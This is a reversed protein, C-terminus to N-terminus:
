FNYALSLRVSRGAARNTDPDGVFLAPSYAENFLNDVAVRVEAGELVGADPTWSGFIDYVQYGKATDQGPPVRDQDWTFTGRAGFELNLSPLRSGITLSLEDAPIDSLPDDGVGNDSGDARIQTYALNGFAFDTDYSAELEWGSYTAEDINLFPSSTNVRSIVDELENNFYVIKGVLQDGTFVVDTGSYSAGLEWTEAKEPKLDLNGSSGDFIEDIVPLRETQALTGFVNITETVDVLVAIKPAFAENEVKDSTSFTTNLSDPKVEQWEYRLGP